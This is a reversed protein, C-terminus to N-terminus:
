AALRYEQIATTHNAAQVQRSITNQAKENRDLAVQLGERARSLRSRVTGVAIDLEESVEQYKMGKVCIMEIIQSHERSLCALAEDVKKLEIEKDLNSPISQKMIHPEPDYQSEFKAKRRYNTVFLNYLIKSLWSFLNSGAEFCDKKEIARLLTAQTLDAADAHNQTLRFAFKELREM